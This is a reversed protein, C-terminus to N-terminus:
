KYFEDFYLKVLVEYPRKENKFNPADGSVEIEFDSIINKVKLDPSGDIFITSGM